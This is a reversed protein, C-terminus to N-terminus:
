VLKGTEVAKELDGLTLPTKGTKKGFLVHLISLGGEDSFYKGIDFDSIDVNFEKSFALIFEDSDDGTIKLDQELATERILPNRYKGREKVVFEKILDLTEM